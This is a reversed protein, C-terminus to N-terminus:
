IPKWTAQKLQAMTGSQGKLGMAEFLFGLDLALKPRWFFLCIIASVLGRLLFM